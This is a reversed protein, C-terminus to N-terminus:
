GGIRGKSWARMLVSGLASNRMGNMVNMENINAAAASQNAPLNERQRRAPYPLITHDHETNTSAITTPGGPGLSWTVQQILGDPDIPYIGIYQRTEGATVQYKRQMGNLYHEARQDADAQEFTWIRSVKRGGPEYEAFVGVQVDEFIRWEEPGRGGLNRTQFYRVPAETEEDLIIVATELILTPKGYLGGGNPLTYVPESFIVLQEYPDIAFPVHVRDDAPSNQATGNWIVSGISFHAYSGYVKAGQDRSYGNYQDTEVGFFIGQAKNGDPFKIRKGLERSVPEIQEVKTDQLVLQHRRKIPGYGPVNFPYQGTVIDVNRIRYCRYVSERALEIAQAKSLRDTARVAHFSPPGCYEWGALTDPATPPVVVSAFHIDSSLPDEISFDFRVGIMTGTLTLVSGVASATVTRSVPSVNISEALATFKDEVTVGTDTERFETVAILGSPLFERLTLEVADYPAAEPTNIHTITVVQKQGTEIGLPAYSVADMPVYSDDWEKAVPELAIRVQYRTPAGAVGIRVPTEPADINGSLVEFIGAPLPQGVGLRTIIVRDRLPQYVIRVGLDDCLRALVEAPPSYDWIVKPNVGIQPFNTGLELYSNFDAGAARDVGEPMDILYNVEGMEQLCLEALERPSRISWPVLKKRGDLRNYQGGIKGLSAQPNRWKWRRDFITLTYQQGQPGLSPTISDAKCNRLRVTRPGDSFVLDGFEKPRLDLTRPIVVLQALGPTISHSITYTFSEVAFADGAWLIAQTLVGM